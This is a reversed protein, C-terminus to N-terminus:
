ATAIPYSIKTHPIKPWVVSMYCKLQIIILWSFSFLFLPLSLSKRYVLSLTSKVQGLAASPSKIGNQDVFENSKINSAATGNGNLDKYIIGGGAGNNGSSGGSQSYDLPNSNQNGEVNGEMSVDEYSCFLPNPPSVPLPITNNEVQKMDNKKTRRRRRDGKKIM